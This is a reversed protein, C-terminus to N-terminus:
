HTTDGKRWRHLVCCLGKNFNLNKGKYIPPVIQAMSEQIDTTTLSEGDEKVIRDEERVVKEIKEAHINPCIEYETKIEDSKVFNQINVAV